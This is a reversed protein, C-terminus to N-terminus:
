TSNVLSKRAEVQNGRPVVVGLADLVEIAETRREHWEPALEALDLVTLAHTRRGDDGEPARLAFELAERARARRGAALLARGHVRHLAALEGDAQAAVARAVVDEALEVAAQAEGLEILRDAAAGDLLITELALGLEDFGQRALSFQVLAEDHRGLGSLVRGSERAVLAVLERDGAARAARLAATLLPEADAFRRQRILLDATNYRVNAENATDGIREFLRAARSFLEASYSWRGERVAGIALNNLCHAQMRLDGTAEYMALALEGYPEEEVAGFRTCAAHRTNFAYALADHDGSARAESVGLASWRMAAAHEHQVYKAFAFRTALRSRVAAAASGDVGRLVGRAHAIIRLSTDFAGLRQHLGAEKLLLAARRVPDSGRYPRARRYSSIAEASFGAIDRVDGLEELVDALEPEPAGCARGSELAREFFEIASVYALQGRAHAGAIRSHRWSGAHEGAHFYHLSLRASLDDERTAAAELARAARSHLRRRLRFPLGGYAVDRILAHRFRWTGPGDVQVFDTLRSLDVQASADAGGAVLMERLMPESFRVGLVAAYRLVTRDDPELRDVDSTLLEEISDPLEAAGGSRTAAAVLTRMFLPNGGAKALIATLQHRSLVADGSQLLTLAQEGGLPSLRLTVRGDASPVFGAEHERRTVLVVWPRTAVTAELRALLDVSAEDALHVNEFVLLSPTPLAHDLFEVVVEALRTRRFEPDLEETERTPPVAVDIVLGLLPLWPVLQPANAAVRDHLRQVVREPDDGPRIGLLDRCLTRFPFYAAASEYAGSVGRLVVLDDADRLVEAVLRSKGMGPEGLIEVLCGGRRRARDQAARVAALEGERGVFPMDDADAPETVAATAAPAGLLVAEIAHSKGKVFFPEVAQAAFSGRAHAMVEATALVEGPAAHAMVRAAVNIADGKISYTRRFPPGFDGAFVRGRNIGARLPLVGARSVALQVARLLRDDPNGGSRPVGAALMFKGGDRNIDSELFSAGYLACAQQVNRVCEDVADAAGEAGRDRILEDTRSFQIFSVAVARHESTGAAAALHARVPPPLLGGVDAGARPDAPEVDPLVPASRLLRGTGLPRGVSAPQLQAATAESVVIQGATAIAEMEATTSAAEGCVILERHISPDGVLFFHFRGSHIGVSMRLNVAGASAHTRGVDRLAHRMRHAARAAHSAHDTGRFLLLVADGGWKVLDAGDTRAADLLRGFTGDLIDSLEESGVRGARALRETLKTFGSIDVFALSGEVVQYRENPAALFWEVALRPAYAALPRAVPVISPAM